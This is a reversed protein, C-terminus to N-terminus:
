QNMHESALQCNKKILRQELISFPSVKKSVACRSQLANVPWAQKWLVKKVYKSNNCTLEASDTHVLELVARFKQM